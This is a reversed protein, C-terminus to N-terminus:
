GRSMIGEVRDTLRQEMTQLHELLPTELYKAQKGNPHNLDLDEHQRTAYPTAAGGYGMEVIVTDGQIYPLDVVGSTKLVGTKMPVIEQSESMIENAEAYLAQTLVTMVEDQANRLARIFDDSGELTIEFGM